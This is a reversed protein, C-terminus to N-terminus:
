VTLLDPERPIFNLCLHLSTLDLCGLDLGRLPALHFGVACATPLFPFHTLGSLAFSCTHCVSRLSSQRRSTIGPAKM